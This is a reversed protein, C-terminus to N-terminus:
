AATDPSPFLDVLVGARASLAELQQNTVVEPTSLLEQGKAPLYDIPGGGPLIVRWDRDTSYIAIGDCKRYHRAAVALRPVRPDILPNDIGAVDVQVKIQEAGPSPRLRVVSVELEQAQRTCWLDDDIYDIAALLEQDIQNRTIPAGTVEALFQATVDTPDLLGHGLAAAFVAQSNIIRERRDSLGRRIMLWCLAASAEALHSAVDKRVKDYITPELHDLWGDGTGTGAFNRLWRLWLEDLDDATLEVPTANTASTFRLFALAVTIMQFNGAPALPDVWALRPDTQAAAWRKFVNRARVRIRAAVAWRRPEKTTGDPLEPEEPTPVNAALLLIEGLVSHKVAHDPRQPPVRAGFAELLEFLPEDATPSGARWLRSYIAARPDRGLEEKQLREWLDDDEPAEVDATEVGGTPTGSTSESVDMVMNCHLWTIASGLPTSIDGANFEVPLGRGPQVAGGRLSRALAVPDDAVVRNSLIEGRTDVIQVLRGNIHETTQATSPNHGKVLPHTAQLDDLLWQKQYDPITTVEAGSETLTARLLRVPPLSADDLALFQLSELDDLDRSVVATDPPYFVTRLIDVSYESLIALEINGQQGASLTLAARSLNPSGSLLWGRGGSIVGVLKAHVFQDPEYAAIRVDANLNDLLEQLRRGNVNTSRTVFVTLQRPNFLELLRAAAAADADFFPASLLLEDVGVQQPQVRDFLQDAIPRDLNHLLPCAASTSVAWDAVALRSELDRFHDALTTDNAFEVLRKMWAHWARITVDGAPTGSQFVTFVERGDSLGDTSLNGSGVFLVSRAGHVSLYTKPHFVGGGPAIGRLLWKRNVAALTDAQELPIRQLVTTLRQHDVLVVVNLPPDGFRPLLYENFLHLDVSYTTAWFATVGGSFLEQIPKLTEQSSPEPYGTM